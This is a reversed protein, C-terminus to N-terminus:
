SAVEVEAWVYDSAGPGVGALIRDRVEVVRCPTEATYGADDELLLTIRSGPKLRRGFAGVKHPCGDIRGFSDIQIEITNKSM